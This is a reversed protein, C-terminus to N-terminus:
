SVQPERVVRILARKNEYEFNFGLNFLNEQSQSRRSKIVYHHLIIMVVNEEYKSSSGYLSSRTDLNKSKGM